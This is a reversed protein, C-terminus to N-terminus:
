PPWSSRAARRHRGGHRGRGLRGLRDLRRALRAPRGRERVRRPLQQRRLLGGPRLQRHRRCDVLLARRLRAASGELAVRPRAAGEGEPRHGRRRGRADEGPHRRRRRRRRRSLRRAARRLARDDRDVVARMQQPDSADAGLVLVEAGMARLAEVRRIRRSARNDEGDAAVYAAWTADPPLPTRQVLVLKARHARALYDAVTLGIGGTGGTILYVGEDRLRAAEDSSPEAIPMPEYTETWRHGGQYAVVPERTPAAMEALLHAITDREEGTDPAPLDINVCTLNAYEQPIVRCPGLLTAREPATADDGTVNHLGNTVVGIHVPHPLTRDGLAQAIALLAYFGRDQTRDFGALGEAAGGDTVLNWLSLIRGPLRGDRQLQGVLATWHERSAPEVVAHTDNLWGFRTDAGVSIM